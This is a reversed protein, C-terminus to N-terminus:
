KADISLPKEPMSDSTGRKSASSHKSVGFCGTFTSLVSRAPRTVGTHIGSKSSFSPRSLRSKAMSSWPAVSSGKDTQLDADSGLLTKADDEMTSVERSQQLEKDGLCNKAQTQKMNKRSYLDIILPVCDPGDVYYLLRIAAQVEATEHDAPLLRGQLQLDSHKVVMPPPGGPQHRGADCVHQMLTWQIDKAAKSNEARTPLWVSRARFVNRTLDVFARLRPNSTFNGSIKALRIGLETRVEEFEPYGKVMAIWRPSLLWSDDDFFDENLLEHATKRGCAREMEGPQQAFM